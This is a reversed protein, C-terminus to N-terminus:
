EYIRMLKLAEARLAVHQRRAQSLNVLLKPKGSVVDFGLVIGREVYDAVASVSLVDLGSLADRIAVVDSALGPGLFVVAIHLNVCQEAIEAPKTYAVIREEHPLGGVLPVSQLARQFRAGVRASEADDPKTLILVRVRDGARAPMNRDYSAVKALLEAQLELPVAVTEADSVRALASAATVVAALAWRRQRTRRMGIDEDFRSPELGEEM